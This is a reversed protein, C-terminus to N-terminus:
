YWCYMLVQEKKDDLNELVGEVWEKVEKVDDFYYENYETSGYFFGSQTPLLDEALAQREKKKASLIKYCRERLDELESKEVKRFVCNDYYNFFSMLFNVKRFYGIDSIGYDAMRPEKDYWERVDQQIKKKEEESLKEYDDEHVKSSEPQKEAWEKHAKEYREYDGRKCKDFYIDLGM